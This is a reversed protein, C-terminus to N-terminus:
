PKRWVNGKPALQVKWPGSNAAPLARLETRVEGPNPLHSTRISGVFIAIKVMVFLSKVM